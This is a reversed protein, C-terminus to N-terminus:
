SLLDSGNYLLTSNLTLGLPLVRARVFPALAYKSLVGWGQIMVNLIPGHVCIMRADIRVCSVPRWEHGSAYKHSWQCFGVDM